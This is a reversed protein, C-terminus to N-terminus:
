SATPPTAFKGTFLTIGREDERIMFLFPRDCKFEIIQSRVVACCRMMVVATAAAAESGEENVEIFAKHIVKSIYLNGDNNEKTVIGTFDAKQGNFADEMGLQKLADNVIFKFEMKFKPLFLNVEQRTRNSKDFVNKQTNEDSLKKEVDSLSVGEAPLIVTFVFQHGNSEANKYPIHIVQANLNKDNTYSYTQKQYMMNVKGATSKDELYFPTDKITDDPKFQKMWTGKFYICNVLILRTDSNVDNQSLLDKILKNTQDEVWKNIDKVVLPGNNNFDVEEIGASYSKELLSQYEVNIKYDKQAFLRNALKLKIFNGSDASLIVQMVGKSAKNLEDISKSNLAKLMQELTGHKAGATCMAMALAISAPSLFINSSSSERVVNYLNLGFQEFGGDQTSSTNLAM